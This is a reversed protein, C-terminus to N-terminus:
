GQVYITVNWISNTFATIKAHPNPVLNSGNVFFVGLGM